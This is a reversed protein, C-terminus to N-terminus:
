PQRWLRSKRQNYVLSLGASAATLLVLAGAVRLWRGLGAPWLLGTAAASAALGAYYEAPFGLVKRPFWWIRETLFRRLGWAPNWLFWQFDWFVAAFFFASLLRAELARSFGAYVLPLHFFAILLLNMYVHYGTLPKGNTLSLWWPPQFRWTPLAEAWGRPGEIEVELKGLLHFLVFLFGGEAWPSM